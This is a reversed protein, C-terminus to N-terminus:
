SPASGTRYSARRGHKQSHYSSVVFPSKLLLRCPSAARRRQLMEENPQAPLSGPDEHPEEIDSPDQHTTTSAAAAEHPEPESAAHSSQAPQEPTDALTSQPTPTPAATPTVTPEVPHSNPSPSERPPDEQRTVTRAAKKPRPMRPFQDADIYDPEVAGEILETFSHFRLWRLRALM